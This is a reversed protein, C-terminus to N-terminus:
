PTPRHTTPAPRRAARPSVASAIRRANRRVAEYDLVSFPAGAVCVPDSESPQTVRGAQVGSTAAPKPASEIPRHCSACNEFLIPAVDRNFTIERTATKGPESTTGSCATIAALAIGTFLPRIRGQHKPRPEKDTWPGQDTRPGQDSTWAALRPEAPVISLPSLVSWPRRVSWASLVLYWPGSIPIRKM